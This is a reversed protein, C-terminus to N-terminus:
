GEGDEYLEARDGLYGAWAFWYAVHGGVRPLRAGDPGLLGEETITWVADGARLTGDATGAEFTRGDREYARVTRGDSDGILVVDILGVQDNIVAGGDFADLPWARAGGVARIGFVQDKPAQREDTVLAPFMLEPDAFYAGYPRGPRYDRSHGTDLSLVTTDPHDELWDAWTTIAVPRIPLSIGSERLEGAIPEGTFQNWLSDTQHDYMLKNSRYLLGSSGFTLPGELGEVTTDFLIGAGCLTCYALSVPVGGIVDNFMEHWDMIRLPYARADGNIEIGFVEEDPTLYTAEVPPILTPNILAPIGDVSVGGWAIEEWRIDMPENPDLFRYFRGDIRSLVFAKLHPFSPHPAIQDNAQQWLMWEHWEEYPPAGTIQSLGDAMEEVSLSRYRFALILAAAADPDGREVLAQLADYARGRSSFVVDYMDRGAQDQTWSPYNLTQAHATPQHVAGFVLALGLIAVLAFPRRM